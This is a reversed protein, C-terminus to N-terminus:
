IQVRIRGARQLHMLISYAVGLTVCAVAAYRLAKLGVHAFVAGGVIGGAVFGSFVALLLYVKWSRVYEGRLWHGAMIGLDTVIGTVHTTRIVLGYYSSAMANQLGCAMSAVPVGLNSGLLLLRTSVALIVGEICLVVGYRRGPKLQTEGIIFGSSAAGLFFGGIIGAIVKLDPFDHFAIDIGIRSAAGTMHSIPVHFFGLVIVNIYGALSALAMGGAIIWRREHVLLESEKLNGYPM